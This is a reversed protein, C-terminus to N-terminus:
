EEVTFLSYEGHKERTVYDTAVLGGNKSQCAQIAKKSLDPVEDSSLATEVDLWLVESNEDGDSHPEGSIYRCRFMCYWDKKNFRVGILREATVTVSTEELLERAVANEPTEGHNIYGGPIILLGKGAGYTHRALLVKNNHIVVGGVSKGWDNDLINDM